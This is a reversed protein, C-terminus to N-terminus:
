ADGDREEEASEQEQTEANKSSELEELMDSFDDLYSRDDTTRQRVPPRGTEKKKKKGKEEKKKKKKEKTKEEKERIKEALVNDEDNYPNFDDTMLERLSGRLSRSIESTDFAKDPNENPFFRYILAKLIAAMFGLLMLGGFPLLMTSFRIPMKLDVGALSGNGLIERIIGVIVTIIGYGLGVFVADFLSDRLDNKVAVRECHLAILSNIAMLPLFIGFQNYIDRNTRYILVAFPFVVVIGIIFYIPVRWYRRIRKLFRSTFLESVILQVFTVAALIASSRLDTAIAVVPCLGVAELLLPNITIANRRITKSSNNM